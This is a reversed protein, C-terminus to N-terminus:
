PEREENRGYTWGCLAAGFVFVVTFPNIIFAGAMSVCGVIISVIRADARLREAMTIEM